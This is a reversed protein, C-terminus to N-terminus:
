APLREEIQIAERRLERARKDLRDGVEGSTHRAAQEIEAARARLRDADQQTIAM